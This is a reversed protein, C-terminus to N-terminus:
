EQVWKWPNMDGRSLQTGFADDTRTDVSHLLSRPTLCFQFVIPNASWQYRRFRYESSYVINGSRFDKLQQENVIWVCQQMLRIWEPHHCVTCLFPSIKVDNGRITLLEKKLEPCLLTCESEVVCLTSTFSNRNLTQVLNYFIQQMYLSITHEEDDRTDHSLGHHLKYNRILSLLTKQTKKKLLKLLYEGSFLSSWLQFAAHYKSTDLPHPRRPEFYNINTIRLNRAITFIRERELDGYDSLWEPNFYIANCDSVPVLKLVVGNTDSFRLAVSQLVTMSIPAKLDPTFTNFLLRVTMGTYFVNSSKVREGYLAVAELLLKYWHAIEVNREKVSQFEIADALWSTTSPKTERCGYKKYKRQLETENCYTLLVFIHSASIRLTQPVELKVCVTCDSGSARLSRGKDSNAFLIAKSRIEDFRKKTMTHISNNICEEKLSKFKPHAIYGRCDSFHTWHYFRTSGFSFIPVPDDDNLKGGVAKKVIKVYFKSRSLMSFLISTKYHNYKDNIADVLDDCVADSDFHEQWLFELISTCAATDIDTSRLAGYLSGM